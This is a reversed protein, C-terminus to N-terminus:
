KLLTVNGTFTKREDNYNNGVVIKWQYMGTQGVGSSVGYQGGWGINTDNTEFIAEGWRNYIIMQYDLPNFGAVFIPKFIENEESGDPTFANPIFFLLEEEVRVIKRITDRCGLESIAILEVTYDGAEPGIFAGPHEKTSSKGEPFHWKYNVADISTNQFNVYNEQETIRAPSYMFDAIPNDNFFIVDKQMMFDSCGALPTTVTLTVDYKGARHFVFQQDACDFIPDRGTLEWTCFYDGTSTQNLLNVTVPTCFGDQTVEFNVIPTEEVVIRFNTEMDKKCGSTAEVSLIDVTVIGAVATNVRIEGEGSQDTVYIQIPGNDIRYEFTFPAEGATGRLRIVPAEDNKCVATKNLTANYNSEPDVRIKFSRPTRNCTGQKPTVTITAEVPIPSINQAIFSLIPTTGEAPLGISEHTNIWSYDFTSLNFDFPIDALRDGHCLRFNPISDLELRQLNHVLISTTDQCGAVNTSTLTVRTPTYFDVPFTTGTVTGPNWEYTVGTQQAVSLQSSASPDCEHPQRVIQSTIQPTVTVVRSAMYSCVARFRIDDIGFDNGSSNTNQNIIAISIFTNNGSNWTASFEQWDCTGYPLSLLNGVQTGNVSLILRGPNESIVTTGWFSFQYDTNPQVSVTQRWVATNAVSAGNVVLMSGSSNGVTHDNCFAFNNHADRSSSVVAYTGETSVLGWTGGTGLRYDSTFATNGLSFDGNTVLNPGFKQVACRYTGSQTVRINSQTAGTSWTYSDYGLPAQINLSGSCITTDNGITFVDNCHQAILTQLFFLAIITTIKKM